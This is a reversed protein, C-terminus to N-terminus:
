RKKGGFQCGLMYAVLQKAQTLTSTWHRGQKYVSGGLWSVTWGRAGSTKVIKFNGRRNGIYYAGDQANKVFKCAQKAM